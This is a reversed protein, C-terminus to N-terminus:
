IQPVGESERCLPEAGRCERKKRLRSLCVESVDRLLPATALRSSRLTMPGLVGPLPVNGRQVGMERLQRSAITRRDGPKLKQM